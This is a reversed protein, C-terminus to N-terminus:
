SGSKQQGKADFTALYAIVDNVQTPDTFGPFAMKTGPVLKDPGALWKQLEAVTWVKFPANKLASSYDFGPVSAVKRGVVGNLEPGVFNTAGPGIKHCASCIAFDSKGAKANGTIKGVDASGSQAFAPAAFALALAVAGVGIRSKQKVSKGWSHVRVLSRKAYRDEDRDVGRM